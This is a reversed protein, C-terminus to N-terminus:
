KGMLELYKQYVPKERISGSDCDLMDSNKWQWGRCGIGYWYFPIEMKLLHQFYEVQSQECYLPNDLYLLSTEALILPIATKSQLFALREDVQFTEGGCWDYSHLAIGDAKELEALMGEVFFGHGTILEGAYFEVRPFKPKLATYVANFDRAYALGGEYTPGYCGVWLNWGPGGDPAEPENWLSFGVAGTYELAAQIFDILDALYEPDPPYCPAKGGNAWWPSTKVLIFVPYGFMIEDVSSWDYVGPFPEVDAWRINIKTIDGQFYEAVLDGPADENIIGIKPARPKTALPLFFRHSTEGAELITAPAPACTSLMLSFLILFFLHSKKMALSFRLRRLEIRPM